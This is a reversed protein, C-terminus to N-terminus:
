ANCTSDATALSRCAPNKLNKSNWRKRGIRYCLIYHIIVPANDAMNNYRNRLYRCYIINFVLLIGTIILTILPENESLKSFFLCLISTIITIYSLILIGWVEFSHWGFFSLRRRFEHPVIISYDEKNLFEMEFNSILKINRLYWLHSNLALAIGINSFIIILIVFGFTGIKDFLFASGAFIGTYSAFMKWAADEERSINDWCKEYYSILFTDRKEM